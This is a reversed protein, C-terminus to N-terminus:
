KENTVHEVEGAKLQSTQMTRNQTVPRASVSMNKEKNIEETGARYITALIPLGLLSQVDEETKVTDDLYELLFSIAIGVLLSLMFAIVSNLVVNPSVPEPNAKDEKAFNLISVNKVSMLAPIENQFVKSVANVIRAANQYSTDEVAVTMVQTNNVSSVSVKGILQESTLGLEPYKAAVKDMIAPTKIIEKYTDILKINTNVTDTNLQQIDIDSTTKTVIIKTSAEYVPKLVYISGIAVLLTVLVVLSIIWWVRKRIIRLYDKIELEKVENEGVIMCAANM